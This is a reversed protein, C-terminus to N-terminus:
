EMIQVLVDNYGDPQLCFARLKHNGNIIFNNVAQIVGYERMGICDFITYDNFQVYGGIKIKSKLAEIDRSVEDYMHGADLYIYDFFRDPFEAICDWSLGQHTFMKRSSLLKKFRNEYYQLHSIGKSLHPSIHNDHEYTLPFSDIAHFENPDLDNILIQSFDGWLVGIEAIIGKKPILELAKRRNPLTICHPMHKESLRNVEPNPRM